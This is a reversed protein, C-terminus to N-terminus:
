EWEEDPPPEIEGVAVDTMEKKKIDISFSFDHGGGSLPYISIHYFGKEEQIEIVMERQLADLGASLDGYVGLNGQKKLVGDILKLANAKSEGGGDFHINPSEMLVEGDMTNLNTSHINGGWFIAATLLIFIKM